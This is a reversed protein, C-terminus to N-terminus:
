LNAQCHIWSAECRAVASSVCTSCKLAYGRLDAGAKTEARGELRLGKDVRRGITVSPMRALVSSKDLGIFVCWVMLDIM